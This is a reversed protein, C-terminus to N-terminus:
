GRTLNFLERALELDEYTDIDVPPYTLDFFITSRNWLGADVFDVKNSKVAALLHCIRFVPKRNQRTYIPTKFVPNGTFEKAPDSTFCLLPHDKVPVSCVCSDTDEKNNIWFSVFKTLLEKDRFPYSPLFILLDDTLNLQDVAHKVVEKIGATDTALHKPRTLAEAGQSRALDWIDFDDTSVIVRECVLQAAEIARVVLPRDGVEQLNKKPIGKSGGRAPIIAIM